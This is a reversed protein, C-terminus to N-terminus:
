DYFIFNPERAVDGAGEDIRTVIHLDQVVALCRQAICLLGAEFQDDEIDHQGSDVAEFDQAPQAFRMDIAADEDQRRAPFHVIPHIAQRESGIIVQRFWEGHLLQDRADGREPAAIRFLRRDFQLHGIEGEIQPIIFQM